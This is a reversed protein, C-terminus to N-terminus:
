HGPTIPAVRWVGSRWRGQPYLDFWRFGPGLTDLVFEPRRPRAQFSSAPATLVEIAGRGAVYAHHVHGCAVARTETGALAALLQEGNAMGMADIWPSEVAIPPHHVFVLNPGEAARESLAALAEPAIRGGPEGPVTSDLLLLQWGDLRAQEAWRVRGGCLFERMAAPDDHNGPIAYTPIDLASLRARLREYAAPEGEDSLDGTAVLVDPRWRGAEALVAALGADPDCGRQPEGAVAGLHCDTIQIVRRRQM